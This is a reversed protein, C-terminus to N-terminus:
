QERKDSRGATPFSAGLRGKKHLFPRSGRGLLDNRAAPSVGNSGLAAAPRIMGRSHDFEKRWQREGRRSGCVLLTTSTCGAAGAAGVNNLDKFFIELIFHLFAKQALKEERAKPNEEGTPGFKFLV